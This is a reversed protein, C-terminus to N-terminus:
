LQHSLRRARNHADIWQGEEVAPVPVFAVVLQISLVDAFKGLHRFENDVVAVCHPQKRGLEPCIWRDDLVYALGHAFSVLLM